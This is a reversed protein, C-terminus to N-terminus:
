EPLARLISISGSGSRVRIVGEGRASVGVTGVFRGPPFPGHTQTELSTVAQQSQPESWGMVELLIQKLHDVYQRMRARFSSDRGIAQEVSPAAVRVGGASLRAGAVDTFAVDTRGAGSQLDLEASLTVPLRLTIDGGESEFVATDLFSWRFADLQIAGSETKGSAFGSFRKLTARGEKRTFFDVVGTVQSLTIDGQHTIYSQEGRVREAEIAGSVSEVLVSGGSVDRLVVLAQPSQASEGVTAEKGVSSEGRAGGSFVRVSGIFSQITVPCGLCTVSLQNVRARSLLVPGLMSKLEVRGGGVWNELQISGTGSTRAELALRTPVFVVLDAQFGAKEWSSRLQGRAHIDSDKQFATSILLDSGLQKV